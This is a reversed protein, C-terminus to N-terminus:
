FLPRSISIRTSFYKRMTARLLIDGPRSVEEVQCLGGEGPLQDLQFLFQADFEKVPALM